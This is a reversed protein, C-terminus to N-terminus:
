LLILAFPIGQVKKIGEESIIGCKIAIAISKGGVINFTADERIMDEFIEALKEGSVEKGKYFSEKLDLQFDNEEFKRGILESDCVAVTDRYSRIIKVFM